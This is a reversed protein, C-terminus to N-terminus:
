FVGVRSFNGPFQLNLTQFDRNERVDHKGELQVFQSLYIFTLHYMLLDIIDWSTRNSPVWVTCLACQAIFFLCLQVPFFKRALSAESAFQSPPLQNRKETVLKLLLILGLVSDWDGFSLLPPPITTPSSIVHTLSKSLRFRTELHLPTLVWITKKKVCIMATLQDSYLM